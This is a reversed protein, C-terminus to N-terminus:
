AGRRRRLAERAAPGKARILAETATLAAPTSVAGHGPVVIAAAAYRARVRAVTGPWADVDADAVNGVTTATDAKVLCGGFLVRQAPFWVVLNDPAHGPGPHFLEFGAADAVPRASLAAISDPPTGGAAAVLRATAGLSRVPIGAEHLAGLGGVRDEHAHTVVARRVPRGLEHAAWELLVRTQRDDWATDVLVTGSDTELLMGNSPYRSTPDETVHMWLGPAVLTVVVDPALRRSTAPTAAAADAPPATSSAAPPTARPAASCAALAGALATMAAVRRRARSDPISPM